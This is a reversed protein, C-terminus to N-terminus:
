YYEWIISSYSICLFPTKVRQGQCTFIHCNWIWLSILSNFDLEFCCLVSVYEINFRSYQKVSQILNTDHCWDAVLCECNHCNARLRLFIIANGHIVQPLIGIFEHPCKLYVFILGFTFSIRGLTNMATDLKICLIGTTGIAFTFLENNARTACYHTPMPLTNDCARRTSLSSFNWWNWWNFKM